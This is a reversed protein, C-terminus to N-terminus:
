ETVAWASGIGNYVADACVVPIDLVLKQFNEVVSRKGHLTLVQVKLVECSLGKPDIVEQIDDVTYYSELSHLRIRSEPLVHRRAISLVEAIDETMIEQKRNESADPSAICGKQFLVVQM